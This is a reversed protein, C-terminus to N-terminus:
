SCVQTAGRYLSLRAASVVSSHNGSIGREPDVIEAFLIAHRCTRAQSLALCLLSPLSMCANLTPRMPWALTLNASLWEAAEVRRMPSPRVAGPM